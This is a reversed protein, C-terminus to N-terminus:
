GPARHFRQDLDYSMRASPAFRPSVLERLRPLRSPDLFERFGPDGIPNNNLDLVVLRNLYPSEALARAGDDEIACRALRLKRLGDLHPCRALVRAGADGFEENHGLNLEQLRVAGPETPGPPRTLIVQLGAAGLGNASLDLVPVRLLDHARSLSQLRSAGIGNEALGLHHLSTLRESGALAEGRRGLRNEKM